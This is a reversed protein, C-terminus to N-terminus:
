TALGRRVRLHWNGVASEVGAAVVLLLLLWPWLPWPEPEAALIPTQAAAAPGEAPRSFARWRELTAADMPRVDSERPDINVAVLETVGGGTAEYFGIQDLVVEDGLGGIGLASRGQPDFIQGGPLGLQRLALTSGLEAADIRSGGAMYASLGAIFPVYVPQLPLDTWERDLSSAFLIVRGAGVQRELVLPEGQELRALVEDGAQEAIVAYRYFRADRLAAARTLAPHQTDLLGARQFNQGGPGADPVFPRLSHGTLPVQALSASRPGFALLVSGGGEVYDQLAQTQAAGLAGADTVIVFARGEVDSGDSQAAAGHQLELRMDALTALASDLFLTDRGRPDGALLLAPRPEPMALVLFRADDAALADAPELRAVVRNPGSALDIDGFSVVARGDSGLSVPEVGARSGNIELVLSRESGGDATHARVAAEVRREVASGSLAEVAWNSEAAEAVDYIRLEMPSRPALEALRVPVSANQADTIFHLVIPAEISRLISDLALMTQGYDIRFPGPELVALQQRLETRGAAADALVELRRGAALLEFTATPPEADIISLAQQRARQWRQGLSMSASRDLLLVHLSATEAALPPTDRNLAPGAFALALLLLVAARLALLVLYKLRRALVRRPEGPELFMLSSFAQRNPNESSLRHLWVPLGIALVGLLFAPALWTM